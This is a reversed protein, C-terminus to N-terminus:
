PKISIKNSREKHLDLAVDLLDCLKSIPRSITHYSGLAKTEPNEVIWPSSYIHTLM